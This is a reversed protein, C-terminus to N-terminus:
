PEERPVAAFTAAAKATGEIDHTHQIEVVDSSLTALMMWSVQRVRRRDIAVGFPTDIALQETGDVAESWATVRRYYVTGDVLELRLHRRGPGGQLYRTYGVWRVTLATSTALVDTTLTLDDAWSPVWVAQARGALWYLLSRHATRRTIGNVVWDQRQTMWPLKTTDYLLPTSADNDIWTMQRGYGAPRDGTENPRDELVPYGLYRATPAIAPWDCPAAAQFRVRAASITSTHRSLSPAETLQAPRCPYLRSAVPWERQTPHKLVIGQATVEAVEIVEYESPSAWIAALGDIVYDRGTTDVAIVSTDAPVVQRLWHLDTWVPLAWTRATWAYLAAELIQRGADDGIVSFEWQRRPTERCALRTQTGDYATQVDNLWSLTETIGDSWDPPIMWAILRVGVVSAVPVEGDDFTYRLRANITPPGNPGVAVTWTRSQLPAFAIPLASPAAIDIGDANQADVQRLTLPRDRWANWVYLSRTQTTALNGVDLVAPAVHVRDYYDTLYHSVPVSTLARPAASVPLQSTVTTPSPTPLSSEHPPWYDTAFGHMAPSLAPNLLGGQLAQPLIATLAAM